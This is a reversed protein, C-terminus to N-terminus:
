VGKDNNNKNDNEATDNYLKTIAPQALLEFYANNLTILATYLFLDSATKKEKIENQIRM